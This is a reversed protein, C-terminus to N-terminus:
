RDYLVRDVRQALRKTEAVISNLLQQRQEPQMDPNDRVIESLAQIAALPNCLEHGLKSSSLNKPLAANNTDGFTRAKCTEDDM